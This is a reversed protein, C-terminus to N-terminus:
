KHMLFPYNKKQWSATIQTRDLAFVHPFSVPQVSVASRWYDIIFSSLLDSTFSFCRFQSWDQTLCGPVRWSSLFGAQLRHKAPLLNTQGILEGSTIPVRCAVTTMYCCAWQRGSQAPAADKIGWVICCRRKKFYQFNGMFSIKPLEMASSLPMLRGMQDVVVFSVPNQRDINRSPRRQRLVLSLDISKAWSNICCPDTMSVTGGSSVTVGSTKRTM